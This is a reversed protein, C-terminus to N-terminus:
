RTRVIALWMVLFAPATLLHWVAHGWLGLPHDPQKDLQWCAYGAVFLLMSAAALQWIGGNLLAGLCALALWAGIQGDMWQLPAVYVAVVTAVLTFIWVVPLDTPFWALAALQALVLFMGVRDLLNARVTKEAHYRWSGYGLAMMAFAFLPTSPAHPHLAVALLGAVVYGLNSLANRPGIPSWCRGLAQDEWWGGRRQLQSCTDTM